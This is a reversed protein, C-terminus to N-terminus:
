LFRRIVAFRDWSLVMCSFVSIMSVSHGHALIRLRSAQDFSFAFPVHNQVSHMRSRVRSAICVNVVFFLMFVMQAPNCEGHLKM